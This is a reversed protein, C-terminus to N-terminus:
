KAKMGELCQKLRELGRRVWTKVTGLPKDLKKALEGHSLGHFFALTISRQQDPGLQEMCQWLERAQVALTALEEPGPGEDPVSAMFAEVDESTQVERPRRLWDLARNRVIATMWTMPASKDADYNGAHHWIKVFSEQLVEEAWDRRRTIRVAVAFLKASSAEYLAAFARQDALACRSLLNALQDNTPATM